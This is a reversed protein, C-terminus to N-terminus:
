KRADMAQRGGRLVAVAFGRQRLLFAATSSLRGNQCVCVYTVGRELEGARERIQELPIALADQMKDRMTDGPDRVDLWRAGEAVRAQAERPFLWELLPKKVHEGFADKSLRVLIGDSTMTVTANRSRNSILAEEGFGHPEKLEAVVKVAGGPGARTIRATGEALLYYFDGETGERIVVQGASVRLVEMHAFAAEINPAPLDAFLSTERMKAIILDKDLKVTSKSASQSGKIRRVLDLVPQLVGM